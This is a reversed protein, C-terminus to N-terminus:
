VRPPEIRANSDAGEGLHKMGYCLKVSDEFCTGKFSNCEIHGCKQYKGDKLWAQNTYDYQVFPQTM